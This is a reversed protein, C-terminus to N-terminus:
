RVGVLEGKAELTEIGCAAKHTTCSRGDANDKRGGVPKLAARPKTPPAAEDSEARKGRPPFLM